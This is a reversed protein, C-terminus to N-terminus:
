AAKIESLYGNLRDTIQESKEYLRTAAHLVRHSAAGAEGAMERLGHSTDAVDGRGEALSRIAAAIDETAREQERMAAAVAAGTDGVSVIIANIRGIAAVAEATSAEIAHVFADIEETAKGTQRALSKVESAVVAFGRGAEGARAAEITANLALLNTQTAIKHILQVIQGISRVGEALSRAVQGTRRAEAVASQTIM